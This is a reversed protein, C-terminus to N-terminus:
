AIQLTAESIVVRDRGQRKAQYLARDAVEILTTPMTQATPIMTAVGLSVTVYPCVQSAQHLIKLAKIQSCIHNALDTVGSIPTNALVIAFEEGGYRAMLDTSRKGASRLVQAVQRLCRDGAQHGYTDNFAKFYDVDLLILSLPFPERTSRKWEQKLHLDFCRRNALQTLDDRWVLDQLVRNTAELQQHLRTQQTLCRLRQRLVAWHIPKTVYDNAGVEFARDVSIQDDLGTIMLIPARHDLAHLKACCTFGDMESMLADLLVLDPKLQRYLHLGQQGSDAEVVQYNEQELLKRLQLRTFLDDDIVLVLLPDGNSFSM